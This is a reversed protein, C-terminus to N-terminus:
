SNTLLNMFEKFKDLDISGDMNPYFEGFCKTMKRYTMQLQFKSMEDSGMLRNNHTCFDPYVLFMPFHAVVSLLYNMSTVPAEAPLIHGFTVDAPTFFLANYSGSGAHTIIYSAQSLLNIKEVINYLAPDICEYGDNKLFEQLKHEDALVRSKAGVSKTGTALYFKRTAPVDPRLPRILLNDVLDITEERLLYISSPGFFSVASATTFELPKTQIISELPIQLATLFESMRDYNCGEAVHIYDIPCNDFWIMSFLSEILHHGYGGNPNAVSLVNAAHHGGYPLSLDIRQLDQMTLSRGDGYGTHSTTEAIVYGDPTVVMGSNGIMTGDQITAAYTDPYRRTTPTDGFRSRLHNILDRDEPLRVVGDNGFPKFTIDKEPLHQHVTIGYQRNPDQIIDKFWRAGRIPQWTKTTQRRGGRGISYVTDFTKLCSGNLREEQKEEVIPKRTDEPTAVNPLSFHRETKKGHLHKLMIVELEKSRVKMSHESLCKKQGRKAIEEREKPHDLYYTVKELLVDRSSYTEVEEGPIFTEKLDKHHETLLFSGVGTTEFQRMNVAQGKACDIVANFGIRGRKLARFMSSGWVPSRNLQEVGVPLNQGNHQHIFYGLSFQRPGQQSAYALESLLINRKENEKTWQGSFVLDFEKEENEIQPLIIEPFGPKLRDTAKVGKKKVEAITEDSNSLILDCCSFDNDPQISAPSWAIILKPKWSVLRMFSNDFEIPDSNFIVDPKIADIQRRTIDHMWHNPNVNTKANEKIWAIQAPGCNAIILDTEYGLEKLYPPYIYGGAFGDRILAQIQDVYPAEVLHPKSKYFAEIYGDYFHHIQLFKM